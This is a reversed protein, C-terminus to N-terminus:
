SKRPYKEARLCFGSSGDRVSRNSDVNGSHFHGVSKPTVIRPAPARKRAMACPPSSNSASSLSKITSQCVAHRRRRAFTDTDVAQGHQKRNADMRSTMRNGNSLGSVARVCRRSGFWGARVNRVLSSPIRGFTRRVDHSKFRKNARRYKREGYRGSHQTQDRKEIM